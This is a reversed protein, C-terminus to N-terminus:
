TSSPALSQRVTEVFARRADEYEGRCRNWDEIAADLVADFNPSEPDAEAKACAIDAEHMKRIKGVIESAASREDDTAVLDLETRISWVLRSAADVKSHVYSPNSLDDSGPEPEHRVWNLRRLWHEMAETADLLKVTLERRLDLWRERCHRRYRSFEIFWAILGGVITGGLGAVVTAWASM